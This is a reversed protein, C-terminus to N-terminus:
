AQVVKNPLVVEGARVLAGPGIQAGPGLNAGAGIFAGPGVVVPKVYLLYSGKTPKIIHAFAGSRHGFIVGDGIVMLSRDTIDVLPTWYVRRGIQSGWARLWLSYLGPVLRLLAELQPIAIYIAQIQHAGWWPSYRSGGLYSAGPHLPHFREHVRLSLPPVVYLTGLLALLAAPGPSSILWLLDGAVLLLLLGPYLSMLFGFTSM